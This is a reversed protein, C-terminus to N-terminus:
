RTRSSLGFSTSESSRAHSFCAYSRAQGDVGDPVRVALPRGEHREEEVGRGPDLGVAPDVIRGRDGRLTAKEVALRLAELAERRAAAVIMLLDRPTRRCM